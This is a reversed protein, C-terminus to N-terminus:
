IRGQSTQALVPHRAYSSCPPPLAVSSLIREKALGLALRTVITNINYESSPRLNIIQSLYKHCYVITSKYCHQRRHVPKVTRLVSTECSRLLIGKRQKARQRRKHTHRTNSWSQKSCPEIIEIPFKWYLGINLMEFMLLNRLQKYIWM